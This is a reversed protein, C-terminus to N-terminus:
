SAPGSFEDLTDAVFLEIEEAESADHISVRIVDPWVGSARLIEHAIRRAETVETSEKLEVNIHMVGGENNLCSVFCVM